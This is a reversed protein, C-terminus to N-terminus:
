NIILTHNVNDMSWSKLRGLFSQGLLLAGQPPAISGTVNQLEIGGVKLSRIRFTASPIESGDALVYTQRGVFDSETITGARILTSVVDAPVSVDSAGSDVTFKLTIIGNIVVPVVYTGGDRQLPVVMGGSQPPQSASASLAECQKFRLMECQQVLQDGERIQEPSMRSKLRDFFTQAEQVFAAPQLRLGLSQWMYALTVNAPVGEGREYLKGLSYQAAGNGREAALRYWKVAIDFDQPVGAGQEYAKGLAAQSAADSREAQGQLLRAEYRNEELRSEYTSADQAACGAVAPLMLSCAIVKAPRSQIRNM